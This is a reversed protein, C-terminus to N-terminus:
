PKLELVNQGAVDVPTCTPAGALEVLVDENTADRLHVRRRGLSDRFEYV